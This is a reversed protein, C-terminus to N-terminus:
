RFAPEGVSDNFDTFMKRVSQRVSGARGPVRVSLLTGFAPEDGPLLLASVTLPGLLPGQRCLCLELVALRVANGARPVGAPTELRFGQHLVAFDHGPVKVGVALLAFRRQQRSSRSGSRAHGARNWGKGKQSAHCFKQGCENRKEGHEANGRLPRSRRVDRRAERQGCARDAWRAHTPSCAFATASPIGHGRRCIPHFQHRTVRAPQDVSRGVGPHCPGSLGSRAAPRPFVQGGGGISRLERGRDKIALDVCRGVGAHRPGRPLAVALPMSDGSRRISAFQHRGRFKAEDVGRGVGPGIPRRSLATAGPIGNGRRRVSCFQHCSFTSALKVGGCVGSDTPRGPFAIAYPIVGSRRGVAGLQYGHCYITLNVSRSVGSHRPRGPGAILEPDTDCRGIIPRSQGCCGLVVKNIGRCVGPDRPRGSVAHPTPPGDRGGGVARFQHSSNFGALDVGRDSRHCGVVEAHQLVGSSM